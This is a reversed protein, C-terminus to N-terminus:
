YVPFFLIVDVLLYLSNEKGALCVCRSQSLNSGACPKAFYNLWEVRSVKLMFLLITARYATPFCSISRWPKKATSILVAMSHPARKWGSQIKRLAQGHTSAWFVGVSYFPAMISGGSLNWAAAAALNSCDHGVKHSGMSPLGGPEGTRPIRWALVSSHTAM